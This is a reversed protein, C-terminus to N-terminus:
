FGAIRLLKIFEEAATKADQPTLPADSSQLNPYAELLSRPVGTVFKVFEEDSGKLSKGGLEGRWRVITRADIARGSPQKIGSRKLRSALWGSAEQQSVGAKRLISFSVNIIARLIVASTYSPPGGSGMRDPADFFLKPKAGRSRDALALLLRGLPKTAESEFLRPDPYLFALVANLAEFSASLPHLPPDRRQLDLLREILADYRAPDLPGTM